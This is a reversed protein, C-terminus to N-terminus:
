SNRSVSHRVHRGGQPARARHPVAGPGPIVVTRNDRVNELLRWAVSSLSYESCFTGDCRPPIHTLSLSCDSLAPSPRGPGQFSASM